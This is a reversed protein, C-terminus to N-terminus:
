LWGERRFSVWKTGAVIVHDLLVIGLANAARQLAQTM